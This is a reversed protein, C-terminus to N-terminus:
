VEEEGENTVWTLAGEINQLTQEEEGNYGTLGTLFSTFAEELAEQSTSSQLETVQLQLSATQSQLDCICKDFQLLKAM